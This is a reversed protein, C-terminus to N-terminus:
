TQIGQHKLHAAFVVTRGRKEVNAVLTMGTTRNGPDFKHEVPQTEGGERETLIITFPQFRYIRAKGRKILMRARAPHCPM